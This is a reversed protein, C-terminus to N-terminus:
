LWITIDQFLLFWWTSMSIVSKVCIDCFHCTRSWGTTVFDSMKHCFSLGRRYCYRTLQACIHLQTCCFVDGFVGFDDNQRYQWFWWFHGFITMKWQWRVGRVGFLPWSVGRQGWFCRVASCGKIPLVGGPGWVPTVPCGRVGGSVGFVHLFSGLFSVNEDFFPWKESFDSGESGLCPDGSVGCGWFM